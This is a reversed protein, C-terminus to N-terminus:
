NYFLTVKPIWIGSRISSISIQLDLQQLQLNYIDNNLVEIKNSLESLAEYYKTQPFAPLITINTGINDKNNSSFVDTINDYIYMEHNRFNTDLLSSFQFQLNDKREELIIIKETIIDQKLIINYLVSNLIVTTLLWAGLTVIGIIKWVAISGTFDITSNWENKWAKKSKEQFNQLQYCLIIILVIFLFLGIFFM